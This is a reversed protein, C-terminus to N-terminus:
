VSFTVLEVQPMILISLAEIDKKLEDRASEFAMIKENQTEAYASLEISDRITNIDNYYLSTARKYNDDYSNVFDLIRKYKELIYNLDSVGRCSTSSPLCDLLHDLHQLQDKMVLIILLVSM